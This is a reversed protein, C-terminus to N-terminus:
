KKVKREFDNCEIDFSSTHATKFVGDHNHRAECVASNVIRRVPFYEQLPKVKYNKCNLCDNVKSM